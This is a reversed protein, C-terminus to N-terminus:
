VYHVRSDIIDQLMDKATSLPIVGAPIKDKVKNKEYGGGRFAPLVRKTWALSAVSMVNDRVNDEDIINVKIPEEHLFETYPASDCDIYIFPVTKVLSREMFDWWRETIVRGNVDSNGFRQGAIWWTPAYVPWSGFNHHTEFQRDVHHNTLTYQHWSAIAAHIKAVYKGNVAYAHTRNVSACKFLGPEVEEPANTHQGGLYLQGWDRDGLKEIFLNFMSEATKFFLVDDELILFNKNQFNEIRMIDQMISM